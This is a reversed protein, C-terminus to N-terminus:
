TVENTALFSDESCALCKSMSRGSARELGLAINFQMIDLSRCGSAVTTAGDQVAKTTAYVVEIHASLEHEFRPISGATEGFTVSGFVIMLMLQPSTGTAQHPSPAPPKFLRNLRHDNPQRAVRDRVTLPARM